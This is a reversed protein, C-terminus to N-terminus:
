RLKRDERERIMAEVVCLHNRHHGSISVHTAEALYGEYRNSDERNIMGHDPPIDVILYMIDHSGKKSFYAVFTPVSGRRCGSM